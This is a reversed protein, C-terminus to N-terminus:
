ENSEGGFHVKLLGKLDDLTKLYTYKDYGEPINANSSNAIKEMTDICWLYEKGILEAFKESFAKLQNNFSIKTNISEETMIKAEAALQLIRDNM